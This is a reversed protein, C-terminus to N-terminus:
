EVCNNKFSKAFRRAEASHKERAKTQKGFIFIAGRMALNVSPECLQLTFHEEMLESLGTVHPGSEKPKWVDGM